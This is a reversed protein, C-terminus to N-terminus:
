EAITVYNMSVRFAEPAHTERPICREEETVLLPQDGFKGDQELQRMIRVVVGEPDNDVEDGTYGDPLRSFNFIYNHWQRFSQLWQLLKTLRLEDSQSSGAPAFVPSRCYLQIEVQRGVEKAKCLWKDYVPSAFIFDIGLPLLGRVIDWSSPSIVNHICQPLNNDLRKDTYFFFRRRTTKIPYIDDLMDNQLGDALTTVTLCLTSCTECERVDFEILLVFKNLNEQAQKQMFCRVNYGNLIMAVQEQKTLNETDHVDKAPIMGRPPPIVPVHSPDVPNMKLVMTEIRGKKGDSTTVTIPNGPREDQHTLGM